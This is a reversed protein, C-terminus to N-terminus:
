FICNIPWIRVLFRRKMIGKKMSACIVSSFPSPFPLFRSKSSRLFVYSRFSYFRFLHFYENKELLMTELKKELRSCRASRRLFDMEMSMFKSELNKNSGLLLILNTEHAETKHSVPLTLWMDWEIYNCNQRSLLSRVRSGMILLWFMSVVLGILRNFWKYLRGYKRSDLACRKWGFIANLIPTRM